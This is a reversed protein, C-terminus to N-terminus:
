TTIREYIGVTRRWRDHEVLRYRYVGASDLTVTGDLGVEIPSTAGFSHLMQNLGDLIMSIRDGAALVIRRGHEDVDLVPGDPLAHRQEEELKM